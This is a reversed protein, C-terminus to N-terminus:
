GVIAQKMKLNEYEIELMRHRVADGISVLGCLRGADVVPLHRFRGDTMRKMVDELNDAPTCTKPDATMIEQVQSDFVELGTTDLTRVVDRESIIGVPKNDGDVVVLAGVRRRNLEAVVEKVTMEPPVTFIEGGKDALIAAVTLSPLGAGVSAEATQSHTREHKEDEAMPSKYSIPAM